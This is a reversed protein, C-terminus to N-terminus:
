SKILEFSVKYRYFDINKAVRLARRIRPDDRLAIICGRVTQNEEALEDIVYGMYRQIQGVVKDSAKGRKLEIVLLESKDKSIALIDIYGTDTPYQQGTTEEDDQYIDHTKGLECSSWNRILFDELHQEMAFVSPGEISEDNATHTGETHGAILSEIEDAYQTVRAITSSSGTSGRLAKSMDARSIQKESWEVLRRHILDGDDHRYVYDSTVEGVLYSGKGDPCLVMDGKSIGKYISYLRGCRQDAQRKSLTKLFYHSFKKNFQRLDDSLGDSLDSNIRSHLGIFGGKRCEEAYKSKEGLMIRWYIKQDDM